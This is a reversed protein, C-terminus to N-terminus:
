RASALRRPAQPREELGHRERDPAFRGLKGIDHLLAAADIAELMGRDGICADALAVAYRRVRQAHEYTFGDRTTMAPADLM